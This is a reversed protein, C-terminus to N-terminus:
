SQACPRELRVTSRSPVSGLLRRRRRSGASGVLRRVAAERHLEQIRMGALVESSFPHM